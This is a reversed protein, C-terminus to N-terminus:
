KRERTIICVCVCVCVCGCVVVCVCNTPGAVTVLAFRVEAEDRRASEGDLTGGILTDCEPPPTDREPSHPLPAGTVVEDRERVEGEGPPPPPTVSKPPPPTVSQSPTESEWTAGEMGSQECRRGGVSM